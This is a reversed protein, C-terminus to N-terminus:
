SHARRASRPLATNEAKAEFEGEIGDLTDFWAQLLEMRQAEVDATEDDTDLEMEQINDYQDFLQSFEAAIEFLRAM